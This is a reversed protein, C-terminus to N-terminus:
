RKTVATTNLIATCPGAPAALSMTLLVRWTLYHQKAQNQFVMTTQVSPSVTVSLGLSSFRAPRLHGLLSLLPWVSGFCQFSFAAARVRRFLIDRAVTWPTSPYDLVLRVQATPRTVVQKTVILMASSSPMSILFKPMYIPLFAFHGTSNVM